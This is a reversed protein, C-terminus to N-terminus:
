KQRQKLFEKAKNLNKQHKQAAQIAWSQLREPFDLKDITIWSILENNWYLDIETGKVSIGIKYNGVEKLKENITKM